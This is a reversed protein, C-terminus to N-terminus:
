YLTSNCGTMNLAGINRYQLTANTLMYIVIHVYSTYKWKEFEIPSYKNCYCYTTFNLKSDISVQRSSLCLKCLGKSHSFGAQLSKVEKNQVHRLNNICPPLIMHSYYRSVQQGKTLGVLYIM